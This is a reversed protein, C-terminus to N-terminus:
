KARRSAYARFRSVSHGTTRAHLSLEEGDHVVRLHTDEVFVTVLKGAHARGIRLRQRAVMIVGHDPVRREARIPDPPAPPPPAAALRAGRLRGRQDAAIPSPLTKALVGGHVAHILHGDLRLTVRQRALHTGLNLTAAGLSVTGDAKVARDVEVVAGAPLQGPGAATSAPPPGAAAAGRLRLEHLDAASLNSVATRVVQGGLSVHVSHEDAWVHALRGVHAAGLRIRQVRPLVSLLGSAAVVADFEVANASVPVM